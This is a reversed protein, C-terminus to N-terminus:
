KVVADLLYATLMDAVAQDHPLQLSGLAAFINPLNPVGGLHDVCSPEGVLCHDPIQNNAKMWQLVKPTGNIAPGEEDNTILFSISGKFAPNERVFDLAAAARLM